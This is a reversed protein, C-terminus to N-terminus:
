REVDQKKVSSVHKQNLNVKKEISNALRKQIEINQPKSLYLKSMFHDPQKKIFQKMQLHQLSIYKTEAISLNDLRAQLLAKDDDDLKARMQNKISVKQGSVSQRVADKPLCFADYDTCLAICGKYDAFKYVNQFNNSAKDMRQIGANISELEQKINIRFGEEIERKAVFLIEQELNFIEKINEQKGCSLVLNLERQSSSSLDQAEKPKILRLKNQFTVLHLDTFSMSKSNM